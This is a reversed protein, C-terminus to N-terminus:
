QALLRQRRPQEAAPVAAGSELLTTFDHAVALVLDASLGGDPWRFGSGGIQNQMLQQRSIWQGSAAIRRQAQHAIALLQRIQAAGTVLHNLQPLVYGCGNIQSEHEWYQKAAILWTPTGPTEPIEAALAWLWYQLVEDKAWFGADQFHTFSTEPNSAWHLATTNRGEGFATQRWSLGRARPWRQILQGINADDSISRVSSEHIAEPEISPPRAAASYHSERSAPAHDAEDGPVIEAEIEADIPVGTGRSEGRTQSIQVISGEVLYGGDVVADTPLKGARGARPPNDRSHNDHGSDFRM